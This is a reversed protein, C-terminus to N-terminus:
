ESRSKLDLNSPVTVRETFLFLYVNMEFFSALVGAGSLNIISRVQIIKIGQLITNKLTSMM